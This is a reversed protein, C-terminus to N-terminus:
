VSKSENWHDYNNAAHKKRRNWINEIFILVGGALFMGILTFGIMFGIGTSETEAERYENRVVSQMQVSFVADFAEEVQDEEKRQFVNQFYEDQKKIKEEEYTEVKQTFEESFVDYGYLDSFTSYTETQEELIDLKLELEQEM